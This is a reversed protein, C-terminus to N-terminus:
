KWWRRENKYSLTVKMRGHLLGSAQGFWGQPGFTHPQNLHHPGQAQGVSWPPRGAVWRSWGGGLKSTHATRAKKQDLCPTM